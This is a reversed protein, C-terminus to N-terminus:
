GAAGGSLLADAWGVGVTHGKGAFRDRAQHAFGHAASREGADAAVRAQDLLALGQCESSDTRLSEEVARRAQAAAQDHQGSAASVRAQMGAFAAMSLPGDPDVDTLYGAAQRPLGSWLLARALDLGAVGVSAQDGHRAYTDRAQELLEVATDWRGALGNVRAAFVTVSIAAYTHQLEGVIGHAEALLREATTLDGRAAHLAALPCTIAVRVARRGSVHETLLEECRRIATDVPEPGLWWSMAMAGLVSALELEADAAVAHHLARRFLEETAAYRGRGQQAQGIWLCARAMGLDDGAAEFVPLQETAVAEVVHPGGQGDQGDLFALLLRVHGEVVRDGAAVAQPLLERLMGAATATDGRLLRTEALQEAFWLQGAQDSGVLAVSRTLLDAAHPLDGRHLVRIGATGLDVAARTRLLRAEADLPGLETLLRVARERHDGTKEEPEGTQELHDALLRHRQARLRKSTSRYAVEQVLTNVFRYTTDGDSRHGTVEVFRRRTLTRLHQAHRPDAGLLLDVEGRTFGRGIVAACQLLAREAPELRDMRASILAEVTPPLGDPTGEEAMAVLQELHFPNGAAREALTDLVTADHAMTECFSAALLRASDPDLPSLALTTTNLRGSGWGPRQEILDSRAVGTLVVASDGAWDGILDLLDLLTPKAWQLDDLVLVVPHDRALWGLVLNLAWGLQDPQGGPSGDRLLGARIEALAQAVDPEPPSTSVSEHAAIAQGLAEALAHLSAGRGYPVCRGVGVVAGRREALAIYERALRSKGLGAEGLVTVLHCCPDRALRDLVLDFQRLEPERGVLPVDSSRVAASSEPTLDVLRYATIPESKGKVSLPGVPEASVAGAVLRWTKEGLLVHGVGAHQQLRAAVNVPEGSALSQAPAAEGYTVVEGTNIGIRVALTAGVMRALEDNSREITALLDAAARVARLADDEHVTPVGFVAVVADGIFKEVSGGYRELCDRALTYYRLMLTRLPEPDLRESLATSDTLDCFLVTVTKRVQATADTDTRATLGTGCSSCFRAGQPAPTDCHPCRTM